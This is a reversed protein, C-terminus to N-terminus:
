DGWGEQLVRKNKRNRMYIIGHRIADNAHPKGPSHLNMRKLVDDSCLHKQDPKQYEIEYVANPWLAEIAGIIYTPTLDPYIGARLTFSECVITDLALLDGEDYHWDLFGQLGNPVQKKWLLEYDDDSYEFLALGTTGGPDVGLMIKM